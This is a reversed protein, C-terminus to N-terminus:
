SANERELDIQRAHAVLDALEALLHQHADSGTIEVLRQQTARWVPRATELLSKGDGTLAIVKTRRDAGSVIQVLGDRRLPALNHSLTTRDMVQAEALDGLTLPQPARDIIALLSYQTTTLGTPRLSDDYIRGLARDARRLATSTCITRTWDPSTMPRDLTTNRAYVGLAAYPSGHHDDLRRIARLISTNVAPKHITPHAFQMVIVNRNTTNRWEQGAWTTFDLSKERASGRLPSRIGSFNRFQGSIPPQSAWDRSPSCGRPHL